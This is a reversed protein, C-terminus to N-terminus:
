GSGKEKKRWETSDNFNIEKLYFFFFNRSANTENNVIRIDKMQLHYSYTYMYVYGACVSLFFNMEEKEEM